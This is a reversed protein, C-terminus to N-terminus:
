RHAPASNTTELTPSIATSHNIAARILDVWHDATFVSTPAPTLALMNTFAELDLAGSTILTRLERPTMETLVRSTAGSHTDTVWNTHVTDHNHPDLPHPNVTQMDEEAIAIISWQPTILQQEGGPLWVHRAPIPHHPTLTFVAPSPSAYRTEWWTNWPQTSQAIYIVVHAPNHNDHERRPM